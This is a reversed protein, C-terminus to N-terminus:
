IIDGEVPRPTNQFIVTGHDRAPTLEQINRQAIRQRNWFWAGVASGVVSALIGFTRKSVREEQGGLRLRFAVEGGPGTKASVSPTLTRVRAREAASWLLRRRSPRTQSVRVSVTSAAAQPQRRVVGTRSVSGVTCARRAM